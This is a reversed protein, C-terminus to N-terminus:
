LSIHPQNGLSDQKLHQTNKTSSTDFQTTHSLPLCHFQVPDSSILWQLCFICRHFKKKLVVKKQTRCKREPTRLKDGARM